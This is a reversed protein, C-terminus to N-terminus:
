AASLTRLRAAADVGVAQLFAKRQMTEIRM